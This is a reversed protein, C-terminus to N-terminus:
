VYDAFSDRLRRFVFLAVLSFAAALLFYILLGLLSPSVGVFLVLRMQEVIYTLPNLMLANQLLPPAADVSYFIPTLFLLAHAFMGTLQDIDRIIIGIAALLWGIALLVPFFAAIVVPLYILTAKPIGFLLAYGAIWVATAILVHILASIALVWPLIELPFVVKKVFNPNAVILRPARTLCEAFANYVILGAFLMLAYERTGGSFGWKAQMVIGFAVTYVALMFLPQALSWLIGGFSGRYRGTFERKVLELLLSRHQWPAYCSPTNMKHSEPGNSHGISREPSL